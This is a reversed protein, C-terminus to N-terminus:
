DVIFVLLVVVVCVVVVVVVAVVSLCLLYLLCTDCCSYGCCCHCHCRCSCSCCCCCYEAFGDLLQLIADTGVLVKMTAVGDTGVIDGEKRAGKSSEDNSLSPLLMYLLSSLTRTCTKTISCQRVTAILFTTAALRVLCFAFCRRCFCM